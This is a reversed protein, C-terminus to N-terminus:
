SKNTLFQQDKRGRAFAYRSKIYDIDADINGSPHLMGDLYITKTGYDMIALVIPVGAERAIHYFGTKWGKVASRTGEPAVALFLKEREKFADAMQSVLDQKASREVPVCGLWKVIGGFPGKVLSAKGMWNFKTKLLGATAIMYIGDLNSTHPAAVIVLKKVDPIKGVVKWGVVSFLLQSFLRGPGALLRNSKFPKSTERAFVTFNEPIEEM